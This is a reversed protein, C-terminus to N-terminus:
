GQASGPPEGDKVMFKAPNGAARPGADLWEAFEAPHRRELEDLDAQWGAVIRLTEVPSEARELARYSRSWAQCMEADSLVRRYAKM